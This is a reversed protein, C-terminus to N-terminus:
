DSIKLPLLVLPSFGLLKVSSFVQSLTSSESALLLSHLALAPWSVDRGIAVSYETDTVEMCGPHLTAVVFGSDKPHYAFHHGTHPPQSSM